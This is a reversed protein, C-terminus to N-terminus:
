PGTRKGARRGAAKLLFLESGVGASGNNFIANEPEGVGLAVLLIEGCSFRKNRGEIAQARAQIFGIAVTGGVFTNVPVHAATRPGEIAEVIKLVAIHTGEARETGGLLHAAHIISKVVRDADIEAGPRINVGKSELVKLQM